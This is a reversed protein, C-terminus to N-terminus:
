GGFFVEKVPKTGSEEYTHIAGEREESATRLNKSRTSASVVRKWQM